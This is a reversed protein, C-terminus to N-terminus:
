HFRTKAPCGLSREEAPHEVNGRMATILPAADRRRVSHRRYLTGDATESPLSGHTDEARARELARAERPRIRAGPGRGILTVGRGRKAPEFVM